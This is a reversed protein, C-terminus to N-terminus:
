HIGFGGPSFYNSSPGYTRSQSRSKETSRPWRDVLVGTLQQWALEKRGSDHWEELGLGTNYLWTVETYEDRSREETLAAQVQEPTLGTRMRGGETERARDVTQLFIEFVQDGGGHGPRLRYGWVPRGPAEAMAAAREARARRDRERCEQEAQEWLARKRRKEQERVTRVYRTLDGAQERYDRYATLVDRRLREMTTPYGARLRRNRRAHRVRWLVRALLGSKPYLHLSAQRNEEDVTKMARLFAETAAYWREADAAPAYVFDYRQRDPSGPSLACYLLDSKGAEEDRM